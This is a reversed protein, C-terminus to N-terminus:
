PTWAELEYIRYGSSQNYDTCYVRVYQVTRASFTLTNNSSSGDGDFVSSWTTGDTSTEVRYRKAYYSTGNWGVVIKSIATPSGLNVQLWEDHNYSSVSHSQWYTSYSGDGANSAPYSSSYTSSSTFTKGKAVNSPPPPLTGGSWVQFEDVRYGSSTNYNSLSLRVYRANMGNTTTFTQASGGTGSTTSAVTTWTNGDASTQVQVNRAYYSGNWDIVFKNYVGPSSGLDVQLWEASSGVSGSNWYTSTNGDFANSASSGSSTRSASSADRLAINTSAPKALAVNNTNTAANVVCPVSTTDYGTASVTLTYAGYLVNSMTYNGSSDATANAGSSCSVGAGSIGAGTSKDTIRGSVTGYMIKVLAASADTAQGDSVPFSKTQGTYGPLAYTVSYSGAALPGFDFAGSATTTTSRGNATVVVGSLPLGSVSDTVVGGLTGQRLLNFDAFYDATQAVNVTTSQGVYGSATVSVTYTGAALNTFRYAGGKVTTVSRGDSLSVVAGALGTANTSDKVLGNLTAVTQAASPWKNSISGGHDSCNAACDSENWGGSASHNKLSIANLKNSNYPAPDTSYALMRPLKWGHPLNSHCDSCMYSSHDGVGHVQNMSTYNQHCKDCIIATSSRGLTATRYDGPYAPDMLVTVSAGHPGASVGGFNHCNNCTVVSNTTWPNKLWSSTPLSWTYTTGSFVFSTRMGPLASNVRHVASNSSIFENTWQNAHRNRGNVAPHCADCSTDKAAIANKVASSSSGHCSACTLAAGNTGKLGSTIHEDILNGSFHCGLCGADMGVTNHESKHGPTASPHCTMCDRAPVTTPSQHCVNCGTFTKGGVVVSAAGHIAGVDTTAHCGSGACEPRITSFDHKAAMATHKTAHCQACTANWTRAIGPTAPLATFKASTHCKVCTIATGDPMKSTTKTLHEAKLDMYHCTGCATGIAPDVTLSDAAAHKANPYHNPDYPDKAAHCGPQACAATAKRTAGSMTLDGGTPNNHCTNCPGATANAHLSAVDGGAPIAHCGECGVTVTDTAVHVGAHGGPAVVHCSDCAATRTTIDPIRVPNKHCLACTDAFAPFKSMYPAHTTPVDASHCGVGTCSATITPSQHKSPIGTHGSGTTADYAAHCGACDASTKGTTLNGRTPNAHCVACKGEIRAAHLTAVDQGISIVHCGLCGASASTTTHVGVHPTSTDVPPHCTSCDASAKAWDIRTASANQHCLACSTAYQPNATGTGVYASHVQPLINSPHCGAAICGTPMATFTHSADQSRHYDTGAALHCQRCDANPKNATVDGGRAPNNHCKACNDFSGGVNPDAKHIVVVGNTGHCGACDDSATTLAHGATMGQHTAGSHCVGTCQATARTWDIRNPDQNLHCLACTTAYQPNRSGTGVYLAHVQPLSKSVDHCGTGFCSTTTPSTHKATQQSHFDVGDSVHCGDCATSAKGTTLDGKTPNAHCVACKGEARSAHLALADPTKHCTFCSSPGPAVHKVAYGRHYDTGEASHCSACEATKLTVDPVRPKNDHCVTCRGPSTVGAHVATVDIGGATNANRHCLGCGSTSAASSAVHRPGAAQHYGLHCSACYNNPDGASIAAQVRAGMTSDASDLNTTYDHCLACGSLRVGTGTTAVISGDHIVTLDAAHCDTCAVEPAAKFATAHQAPIQKHVVHCADCNTMHGQIAQQVNLPGNHCTACTLSAGSATHRPPRVWSGNAAQVGLHEDVVNSTHCGICDTTYAGGTASGSVYAYHATVPNGDALPPNAWHVAYHTSGATAGLTHCADCAKNGAAIAAIVNANASEHCGACAFTGGLAHENHIPVLDETTGTSTVTVSAAHCGADDCSSLDYTSTHDKPHGAFTFHCVSCDNSLLGSADRPLTPNRHCVDCGSLRTPVGGVTVTAAASAHMTPLDVVAPNGRPHCTFCKQNATLVAGSLTHLSMHLHKDAGVVPNAANHCAECRQDWRSPVTVRHDPNITGEATVTKGPLVSHCISCGNLAPGAGNPISVAAHATQLDMSHCDGCTKGGLAPDLTATEDASHDVTDYGHAQQRDAHCSLCAPVFTGYDGYIAFADFTVYWGGLPGTLGSNIVTITHTGPTLSARYLEVSGTRVSAYCSVNAVTVGDLQVIATGGFPDRYGMYAVEAGSVVASVSSGGVASVTYIASGGSMLPSTIVNWVGTKVVSASNNEYSTVATAAPDHCTTASCTVQSSTASLVSQDGSPTGTCLTGAWPTATRSATAPTYTHDGHPVGATHCASCAAAAHCSACYSTSMATMGAVATGAVVRQQAPWRPNSHIRHLTAADLSYSAATYFSGGATQVAPVAQGKVEGWGAHCDYCHEASNHFPHAGAAPWHCAACATARDVPPVVFDVTSIVPGNNGAAHCALCDTSTNYPAAPITAGMAASPALAIALVFAVVLGPLLLRRM